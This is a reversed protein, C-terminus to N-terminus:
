DPQGVYNGIKVANVFFDYCIFLPVPVRLLLMKLADFPTWRFLSRCSFLGTLTGRSSVVTFGLKEMARKVDRPSYTRKHEPNVDPKVFNGNPTSVIMTGGQRLVRTWDHLALVPNQLHELVEGATVLDFCSATFPLYEASALVTVAKSAQIDVGVAWHVGVSALLGNGCGIDLASPFERGSLM